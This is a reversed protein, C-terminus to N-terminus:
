LISMIKTSAQLILNQNDMLDTNKKDIMRKRSKKFLEFIKATFTNNSCKRQLYKMKM